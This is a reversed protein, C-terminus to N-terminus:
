KGKVINLVVRLINTKMFIKLSIPILIIMNVVLISDALQQWFYQECKQIAKCIFKLCDFYAWNLFRKLDDFLGYFLKGKM